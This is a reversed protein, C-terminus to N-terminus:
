SWFDWWQYNHDTPHNILDDSDLSGWHDQDDASTLSTSQRDAAAAAPEVMKLLEGDDHNNDEFGLLDEAKISSDDDSVSLMGELSKSGINKVEFDITKKTYDSEGDSSSNRATVQIERDNKKECNGDMENKLKQLQILLSKEEKKVSEFQSALNNYSALLVSYDKEIQKSKWRARKNQFWIAVQRPQLGLEKALQAKKRPELKTEHEFTVELSRIQDDSFRRKNKCKKRSKPIGISSIMNLEEFYESASSYEAGGDLM